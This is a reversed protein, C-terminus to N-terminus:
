LFRELNPGIEECFDKLKEVNELKEIEKELDSFDEKLFTEFIKQKEREMTEVSIDKWFGSLLLGFLFYQFCSPVLYKSGQRFLVLIKEGLDLIKKNEESLEGGFQAVELVRRYDTLRKKIKEMLDKHLSGRTQKGVRSVSLFDNVPPIQGKKLLTSDFFIHGDTMALINTQIYGSIDNEITQVVPFASISAEKGNKTIVKGAREMLTAHLHFIDGPYAERGPPRKLLLSIERYAKAHTTLDDFVVIVNKGQDRFYEAITIGSFPALYHLAPSENSTTAVLVTKEIAKTEKLYEEVEKLVTAEKAIGVYVSITGKKAQHSITQLLFTTKGTKADGIVTERQGYGLPVLLDVITVGTELPEKIRVRQTIGLSKAQISLLAKKGKIPGLNDIPQCLPNVIRGLLGNSVPIKFFDGTRTVKKGVEIKETEFMLIGAETRKLDIVMGKEEDESIIEEGIKLSPLGSVYVIPGSLYIVEGVEKTKKKEEEFKSLIEM